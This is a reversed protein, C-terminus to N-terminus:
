DIEAKKRQADMRGRRNDCVGIRVNKRLVNQKRVTKHKLVTNRVKPAM